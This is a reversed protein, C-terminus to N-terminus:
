FQLNHHSIALRAKGAPTLKEMKTVKQFNKLSHTWMTSRLNFLGFQPDWNTKGQTLQPTWVTWIISLRWQLYGKSMSFETFDFPTSRLEFFPKRGIFILESFPYIRIESVVPLVIIKGGNKILNFNVFFYEPFNNMKRVALRTWIRTGVNQCRRKQPGIKRSPLLGCIWLLSGLDGLEDLEFSSQLILYTEFHM